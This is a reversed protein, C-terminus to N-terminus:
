KSRQWLGVMNSNYSSMIKRNEGTDGGSGFWSLCNNSRLILLLLRNRTKAPNKSPGDRYVTVFIRFLLLIPAFPKTKDYCPEVLVTWHPKNIMIEESRRNDCVLKRILRRYKDNFICNIDIHQRYSIWQHCRHLSNSSLSTGIFTLMAFICQIHRCGLRFHLWTLQPLPHIASRFRIPISWVVSIKAHKKVQVAIEVM